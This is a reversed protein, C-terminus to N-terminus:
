EINQIQERIKELESKLEVVHHSIKAEKSKASLTTAERNMEQLLFDLERGVPGKKGMTERFKHIHANLRVLEETIDSRDALFAVEQILRNEDVEVNDLLKAIRDNLKASMDKTFDERKAEVKAALKELKGVRKILDKELKIGESLRMKNLNDLATKVSEVIHRQQAKTLANKDEVTFIDKFTLIHQLEIDQALNLSKKLEKLAEFSKKATDVDISPNKKRTWETTITVRIKGRIAKKRILDTFESELYNLSSSLQVSIDLFRHNESKIEVVIDGIDISAESRGFGTMSIM